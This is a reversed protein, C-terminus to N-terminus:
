GKVRTLGAETSTKGVTGNLTAATPQWTTKLEASAPLPAHPTVDYTVQATLKGDALSAEATGPQTLGLLLKGQWAVYTGGQLFARAPQGQPDLAVVALVADTKLGAAEHVKGAAGCLVVTREAGLTIDLGDSGLPKIAPVLGKVVPADTDIVVDDFCGAGPAFYELALSIEETGEPVKGSITHETWREDRFPGAAVNAFASGAKWFYLHMTVGKDEPTGETRTKLRATVTSGVPLGFRASYYYGSQEIRAYQKGEAPNDTAFTHHPLDEGARPSWGAMGKEFGGNQLFKPNASPQPCLCTTFTAQAARATEMRLYQGYDEAGPYTEIHPTLAASSLVRAWVQSRGRVVTFLDGSAQIEGMGDGHLLFNYSHPQPAALEDRLLFFGPKVYVIRRDFRDLVKQTDSNYPAAAEGKVYDFNQGAFFESIKGGAVNIQDHGPSPVTTDKLWAEDVDLVVSCHGITGQSFKRRAPRYFDHYGRDPIIWQDGYSVVFANHDYHNHGIRNTTPGSKFFLSAAQDNFGERLSAYGIDTFVSSPNWTPPQPDLKSEDFRVFDYIGAPQLANILQLYYASEKSGRQALISMLKPVAVGPSGDSFCPIQRTDPALLGLCYHPMTALYPHQFLDQEVQAAILADFCLALSDLLYTGYMPGEFMGGDKGGRDLSVRIKAICSALYAGGKPDEPRVAVAALTAGSLLVAYGNTDPPYHDVYGLIPELGKTILAQRVEAREAESLKGYCWDYFMAMSYTCHGTDLCAKINGAGYSADTWQDWKALHLAIERAKQFYRDEGTVLYAFSFHTLRTSLSDDREQFMATWPPYAPSKPHPPPTQDSLTYEWNELTVGGEGPIAVAYHYTPLAALGDARKQLAAWIASTQFGFKTPTTAACKAKLAALSAANVLVCPHSKVGTMNSAEQAFSLTTALLLILSCRLTM